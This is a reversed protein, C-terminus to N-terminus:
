RAQSALIFPDDKHGLRNLEVLKYGLRDKKVGHKNDVWDCMFIPIQKFQYDLVWIDYYTNKVYTVVEKSIHTETAIVNVGNDQYFKGDHAKTRFTYGNIAYVDYKIINKNPGHSIWRMTETVIERCVWLEKELRWM